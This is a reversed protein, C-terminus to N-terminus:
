RLEYFRTLQVEFNVGKGFVNVLFTQCFCSHYNSTTMALCGGRGHGHVRKSFPSLREIIHNTGSQFTEVLRDIDRICGNDNTLPIFIRCGRNLPLRFKMKEKRVDGNKGPDCPIMDIYEWGEFYVQLLEPNEHISYLKIAHQDIVAGIGREPFQHIRM